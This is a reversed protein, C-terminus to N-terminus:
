SKRVLKVFDRLLQNVPRKSSVLIRYEEATADTLVDNVETLYNHVDPKLETKQEEEEEEEKAEEATKFFNILTDKWSSQSFFMGLLIVIGAWFGNEQIVRVVENLDLM